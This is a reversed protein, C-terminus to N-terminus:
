NRPGKGEGAIRKTEGDFEAVQRYLCERSHPIRNDGLRAHCLPAACPHGSANQPRMRGRKCGHEVLLVRREIARLALETELYM